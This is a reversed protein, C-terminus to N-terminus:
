PRAPAASARSAASCPGCLRELWGRSRSHPWVTWSVPECSSEFDRSLSVTPQDSAFLTALEAESADQRYIECDRTDHFGVYWFSPDRIAADSLVARDLTIQMEYRQIQEAWDRRAPPNPPEHGAHTYDQLRRRAFDLVAYAQYEALTRATGCGFQGVHLDTLLSKVKAKSRADHEHWAPGLGQPQAHDDWHKIESSRTYYHWLVLEHPHFLDFGCTYARVALSIEEGIFYLDPDYPVQTVFDGITFLFGASVFRARLPGNRGRTEGIPAPKLVPIGDETFRDFDMRMPETEFRDPDGPTFPPPYTSVVPKASATREMLELLRRDWEPVFRHHSDIQLYFAEGAWLKMIESRAWCAGRSARFDVDLVRFRPDELPLAPEDQGHQWCIGFRLADPYRAKAVCDSITPLLQRDRYSAISVFIRV